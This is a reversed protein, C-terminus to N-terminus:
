LWIKIIRGSAAWAGVSYNGCVVSASAWPPGVPNESRPEAGSAVRWSAGVGGWVSLPPRHVRRTGVALERPPTPARLVRARARVCVCVCVCVCVGFPPRHVRRAGVVLVCELPCTMHRGRAAVSLV